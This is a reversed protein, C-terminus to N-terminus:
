GGARNDQVDAAGAGAMAAQAAGPTEGPAIDFVLASVGALCISVTAALIGLSLVLNKM